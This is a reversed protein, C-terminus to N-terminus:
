CGVSVCLDWYVSCKGQGDFCGFGCLANFCWLILFVAFMLFRYLCIGCRVWSVMLSLSLFVCFVDMVRLLAVFYAREWCTVVFSCLVSLGTHCSMVFWGTWQFVVLIEYGNLSNVSVNRVLWKM